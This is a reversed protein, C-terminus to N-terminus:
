IKNRPRIARAIAGNLFVRLCYENYKSNECGFYDSFATALRPVGDWQLSKLHEVVPNFKHKSAIYDLVQELVNVKNIGDYDKEIKLLIDTTVNDDIPTQEGNNLFYSRNAFENYVIKNAFREDNELISAFNNFTPKINGGEKYRDLQQRWLPYINDSTNEKVNSKKMKGSKNEKLASNNTNM